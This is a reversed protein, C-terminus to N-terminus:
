PHAQRWTHFQTPLQRAQAYQEWEGTSFRRGLKTTLALAHQQIEDHTVLFARENNAGTIASSMKLRYAQWQADTWEQQARRMPNRDGRMREAHIADHHVKLLIQLNTPVNNKSNFDRHHVVEDRRLPHGFFTAIV